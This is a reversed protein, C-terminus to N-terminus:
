CSENIAVRSGRWIRLGGSRPVSDTRTGADDVYGQSTVMSQDGLLKMLACVNGLETASTRRFGHVLAGAARQGNLGAMTVARLV